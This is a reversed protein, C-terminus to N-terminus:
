LKSASPKNYQNADVVVVEIEIGKSVVSRVAERLLEVSVNTYGDYSVLLYVGYKGIDSILYTPLQKTVGAIWKTNRTLKTELLCKCNYGRSFKFDVPGRGANAEPDVSVNNAACITFVMGFMLRQVAKELKPKHEDWLLEWGKQQEIFHKFYIALALVFEKMEKGNTPEKFHFPLRELTNMAIDPMKVGSMDADFDYSEGGRQQALMVFQNRIEVNVSAAALIKEKDFTVIKRALDDRHQEKWQRTAYEAFEHSGLTPLHRLFRKPSLLIPLNTSPNIPLFVEVAVWRDQEVDYKARDLLCKKVSINLEECVRETYRAFRWKTIGITADSIRDPGIGGSLISIEEFHRVDKMGYAISTIIARVMLTALGRGSGAGKTGESYGLFIEGAEPMFLARIVKQIEYSHLDTGAQAVRNFQRQFFQIIENHAGKFEDEKELDLMLFPDVCLPSDLWLCPDFWEETGNLPVGFTKSFTLNM